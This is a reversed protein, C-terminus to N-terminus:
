RSNKKEAVDALAHLKKLFDNEAELYALRKLLSAKDTPVLKKKPRGKSEKGRTEKKLGKAGKELYIKKWRSLCQKSYGFNFLSLDIEFKKFIDSPSYGELYLKVAKLKFKPSFVVHNKTLREIWKTSLLRKKELDSFIGM